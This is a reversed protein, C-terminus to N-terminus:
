AAYYLLYVENHQLIHVFMEFCKGPKVDVYLTVNDSEVFYVKNGIMAHVGCRLLKVGATSLRLMSGDSGDDDDEDNINWWAENVYQQWYYSVPPYVVDASCQIVDGVTVNNGESVNV